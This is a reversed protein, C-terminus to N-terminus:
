FILKLGFELQRSRQLSTDIGIHANGPDDKTNNACETPSFVGGSFCGQINRTPVYRNVHNLVNYAQVRAQINFSEGIRFNKFLSLDWYQQSEARFTNRGLDGFVPSAPDGPFIRINPPSFAAPNFQMRRARQDATPTPDGVLNPRSGAEGFVVTYVPGSQLTVVNNLQFGGFLFDVIRPIDSGFRRGRGFPLDYVNSFTFRHRVDLDSNGYELDPRFPNVPGFLDRAPTSNGAFRGPGNDLAHSWTYTALISLGQSLRKELKTQLANYNSEGTDDTFNV